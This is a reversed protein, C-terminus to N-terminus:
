SLLIFVNIIYKFIIIKNQQIQFIKLVHSRKLTPNNPDWMIAPLTLFPKFKSNVKITENTLSM